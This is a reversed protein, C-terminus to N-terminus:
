DNYQKWVVRNIFDIHSLIIRVVKDSVNDSKYDDVTSFTTGSQSQLINIADKVRSLNLGTMMVTGEEMGEPREHSDRINLSDLGLISTEETITGSDSLVAISHIQLNM